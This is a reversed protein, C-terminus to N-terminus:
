EQLLPSVSPAPDGFVEHFEKGAQPSKACSGEIPKFSQNLKGPAPFHNLIDRATHQGRICITVATGRGGDPVKKHKM